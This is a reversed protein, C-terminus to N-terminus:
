LCRMSPLMVIARSSGLLSTPMGQLLRYLRWPRHTKYGLGLHWQQHWQSADSRRMAGTYTRLESVASLIVLDADEDEDEVNDELQETSVEVVWTTTTRPM